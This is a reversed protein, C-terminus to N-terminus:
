AKVQEQTIGVKSFLDDFYKKARKIESIPDSDKNDGTWMELTYSGNYKMRVLLRLLGEFDVCGDGFDVNKFKGKSTSTVPQTDKLHVAVINNINNELEKSVDNEPWASLNGLDPYAQLWPSSILKKYHRIKSLSNIFPDDMTEISLMVMKKAAMHVCKELNEVFWERSVVDKTEYYVDYGALHINRIGLDVALDIAKKMMSLAKDRKNKDHSGLPYRRHGSLMLTNIRSNTKWMADRFDARQKKNWDLRALRADSEDISFELFNFGLDHVLKFKEEWSLNQPLAKEYIGIANVTMFFVEKLLLSSM